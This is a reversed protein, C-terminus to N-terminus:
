GYHMKLLKRLFIGGFLSDPFDEGRFVEKIETDPFTLGSNQRDRCSRSSPQKNGPGPSKEPRAAGKGVPFGAVEGCM